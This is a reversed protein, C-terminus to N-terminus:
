LNQVDAAIRQYIVNMLSAGVVILAVDFLVTLLSGAHTSRWEMMILLFILLAACLGAIGVAILISSRIARTAAWSQRWTMKGRGCAVHPLGMACRYFLYMGLVYIAVGAGLIVIWYTSPSWAAVTAGNYFPESIYGELMHLAYIFGLALAGIVVFTSVSLLLWRWIYATEFKWMDPIVVRDQPDLLAARHLRVALSGVLWVFVVFYLLGSPAYPGLKLEWEIALTVLGYIAVQFWAMKLVTPGWAWAMKLAEGFMKLGDRIM